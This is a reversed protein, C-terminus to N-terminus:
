KPYTAPFHQALEALARDISEDSFIARDLKPAWEKNAAIVKKITERTVPQGERLLDLAAFDVTALLELDDNKKFRFKDVVWDISACVSYNPLYQDIKDIHDGSILGSYVGTKGQKVYGNKEAIKEPGGYKAWPSYPGAAKKLYHQSVDNEAKRHALYALKNYRKRGLPFEPKALKRVLQAIVVAEVFEDTTKKTSSQSTQDPFPVMNTMYQEGQAVSLEGNLLKPLLADRLNALRNSEIMNSDIRECLPAVLQEFAKFLRNDEPPPRIFEYAKIQSGSIHPISTGTKIAEIHSRFRLDSILLWIFHEGTTSSARLRAVRQVLLCPLDCKRVRVWNKGVKSGDMGILVDGIRLCYREIESSLEKWYRTKSDWHFFGEKVNDGRALRVGPPKESFLNSKFAFGTLFNIEQGLNTSCWGLPIPGSPSSQLRDPFLAATAKDLGMPVRGNFKAHVPDFNVFWSQFLARAMAELTENMQQNLEIKDDLTGLLHAIARQECISPLRLPTNRLIGLNTHPVGTQIANQRIYAQQETSTFVYYLFLNDTKTPDVTLKMQSQSILYRDFRGAPVLAVQGLTGRQTFILDGPKACNASLSEAKEPTVYAFEGDVWRGHGMNTGRIVPIGQSTYDCSVLDSGFPGGVLANRSPAAVDGIRCEITKSVSM